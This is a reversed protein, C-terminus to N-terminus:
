KKKPNSKVLLSLLKKAHELVNKHASKDGFAEEAEIVSEVVKIFKARKDGALFPQESTLIVGIFCDPFTTLDQM